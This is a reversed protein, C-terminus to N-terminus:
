VSVSNTKASLRRERLAVIAAMALGLLLWSAGGDPVSVASRTGSVIFNDVRNLGAAGTVGVEDAQANSKLVLRFFVSSDNNLSTISSVDRSYPSYQNAPLVVYAAGFQQFPGALDTSWYFGFDRPGADTSAQEWTVVIDQFGITSLAFQWYDGDGTGTSTEPTTWYNSSWAFNSSGRDHSRWDTRSDGHNGSANGSGTAPMVSTPYASSDTVDGPPPEFTWRAITVAVAPVPCAAALVSLAILLTRLKM